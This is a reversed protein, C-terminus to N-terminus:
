HFIPSMARLADATNTRGTLKLDDGSFSIAGATERSVNASESKHPAQVTTACGLVTLALTAALLRTMSEATVFSIKM